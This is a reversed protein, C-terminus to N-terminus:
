DLDEEMKASAGETRGHKELYARYHEWFPTGKPGPGLLEQLSAGPVTSHQWSSDLFLDSLMFFALDGITTEPWFCFVPEDTKTSNPIMEILVPISQKGGSIIEEVVASNDNYEKDQFRGKALCSAVAQLKTLDFKERESQAGAATRGTLSILSMLTCLSIRILLKLLAGERM